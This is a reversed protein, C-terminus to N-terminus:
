AIDSIVVNKKSYDAVLAKTKRPDDSGAGAKRVKVHTVEGEKNTHDLTFESLGASSLSAVGSVPEWVGGPGQARKAVVNAITLGGAHVNGVVKIFDKLLGTAAERKKLTLDLGTVGASAVSADITINEPDYHLQNLKITRLNVEKFKLFREPGKED